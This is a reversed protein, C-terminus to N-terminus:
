GPLTRRFCVSLENDVYAGYKAIQQFGFSTYLGIAEPQRVGTELQVSTYGFTKGNELLRALLLRAVGTGRAATVVYM